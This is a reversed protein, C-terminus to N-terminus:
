LNNDATLNINYLLEALKISTNTPEDTYELSGFEHWTPDVAYDWNIFHLDPLQWEYTYFWTEDVLKSKILNKLEKIDISTPNEFVLYSNNKYNCSDRYLYSFKVNKAM